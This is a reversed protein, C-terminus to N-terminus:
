SYVWLGIAIGYAIWPNIHPAILVAAAIMFFQHETM